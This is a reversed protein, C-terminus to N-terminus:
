KLLLVRKSLEGYKLIFLGEGLDTLNVQFQSQNVNIEKLLRGTGDFIQLLKYDSDMNEFQVTLLGHTPNPYIDFTATDKIEETTVADNNGNFTPSQILFSGTGNPVRAYSMDTTQM